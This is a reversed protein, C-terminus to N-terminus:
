IPELLWGGLLVTSGRVPLSVVENYDGPASRGSIRLVSSLVVQSVVGHESLIDVNLPRYKGVGRRRGATCPTPPGAGLDCVVV